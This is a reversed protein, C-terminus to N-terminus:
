RFKWKIQSKIICVPRARITSYLTAANPDKQLFLVVIIIIIKQRSNSFLEKKSLSIKFRSHRSMWLTIKLTCTFDIVHYNGEKRCFTSPSLSDGRLSHATACLQAIDAYTLSFQQMLAASCVPGSPKVATEKTKELIIYYCGRRETM